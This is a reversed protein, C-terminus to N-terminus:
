LQVREQVPKLRCADCLKLQCEASVQRFIMTSLPWQVANPFCSWRAACLLVQFDILLCTHAHWGQLLLKCGM